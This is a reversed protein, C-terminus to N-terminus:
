KKPSKYKGNLHEIVRQTMNLTTSHYLLGGARAPIPAATEGSEFVLHYNGQAGVEQIALYIENLVDENLKKEQRNIDQQSREFEARYKTVAAEIKEELLKRDAEGLTDKENKYREQDKTIQDSLATIPKQLEDRTTRLEEYLDKQKQYNDFVEKVNVVGIRYAGPASEPTDAQATGATALLLAIVFALCHISRM